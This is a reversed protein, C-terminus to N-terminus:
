GALESQGWDMFRLRLMRRGPLDLNVISGGRRYGHQRREIAARAYHATPEHRHQVRGLDLEKGTAVAARRVLHAAVTWRQDSRRPPHPM